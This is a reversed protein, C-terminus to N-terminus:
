VDDRAKGPLEALALGREGAVAYVLFTRGDESYIAPDRLQRVPVNVEGRESPELPLDVGEYQTEPELVARPPTTTWAMWDPRLDIESLLIREPCDGANTYFVQLTHGIVRVASHRMRESFLAPGERFNTVGDESRYVVGPMALAYYAGRWRFVRFYSRGLLGERASFHLGDRSTAVRTMQVDDQVVGHYYMRLERHEDDVHVDPSAIHDTFLSSSLPLVGPEHMRWPGHLEDAYALRIYTGSHAAFYLYYRGLRSPMWDPVRILSPGNINSGM